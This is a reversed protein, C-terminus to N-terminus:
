HHVTISIEGTLYLGKWKRGVHDALTMYSWNTLYLRVLKNNNKKAAMNKLLKDNFTLMIFMM